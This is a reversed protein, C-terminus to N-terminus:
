ATGPDPLWVRFASGGGTREEVWARGGHLEAFRQVLTLGIGVGPSHLPVGDGQEFPEFIRSRVDEPVGPGDDDVSILVGDDERRVGVWIRGDGPTYRRANAVLNELIREVKPGDVWAAVPEADITIRDASGSDDVVERALAVLDVHGRVPEVVGRRLRDVDLLNSVLRDLKRANASLRDLLDSRADDSLELEGRQLTLSMGLIAALPTRLDHSVAQLFLDKLEGVRRLEAAAERELELARRMEAEARKRESIDRVFGAFAIEQHMQMAVISLEVPFRRGFRDIAEVEIRRGIVPGHGTDLYRHLGREHAERLDEPVIVDAMRRGLVDGRPWGFTREAQPNWGTIAGDADMTVVADLAGDVILGMQELSHEVAAEAEKRATIDLTVGVWRPGEDTSVLRGEDLVWLISGDKRIMRYELSFPEGTRNSELDAAEVRDQDDPHIIRKWLLPDSTLERPSYGTGFGEAYLMVSEGTDPDVDMAYVGVISRGVLDRLDLSFAVDEPAGGTAPASRTSRVM